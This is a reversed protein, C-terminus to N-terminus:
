VRKVKRGRQPRKPSSKPKPEAISSKSSDGTQEAVEMPQTIKKDEDAEREIGGSVVECKRTIEGLQRPRAGAEYPEARRGVHRQDGKGTENDYRLV